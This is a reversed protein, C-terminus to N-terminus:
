TGGNLYEVLKAAPVYGGIEQGNELFIAPTGRVGLQNGLSFQEAVPNKCNAAKIRKGSKADTLAQQRDDACWVSVTTEYSPSGLGARPFALYRVAIGAENLVDIEKHLRRCYTCDVDTFVYLTHKVQEPAFEIVNEVDIANLANVRVEARREDSLNRRKQLDMLDGHLAYRGDATMYFVNTGVVVEYLGNAPSRSIATIELGPWLSKIASALRKEVAADGMAAPSFLMVIASTVLAVRYM